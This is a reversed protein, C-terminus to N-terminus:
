LKTPLRDKSTLFSSVVGAVHDPQNIHVYHNGPVEVYQFREKLVSKLTETIFAMPEKKDHNEKRLDGTGQSAKVLLVQAQLKKIFPVFREKSIFEAHVEPLTLRRDRNIVLGTAVPSTGRQLLIKGSEEWVHTNTKVLRQLIEDQSYVREPMKSARGAQAKDQQLMHEIRRRRVQLLLWLPWLHDRCLWRSVMGAVLGGFSHGMISLRSWKLAATVRLVESVFSEHRYLVGPSYHSSLGHGGFDMAVYYFDRPLLPILRDFSNANDLWAHLCLVPRDSPSGWAKAAIHGWPVPLKLESYLGMARIRQDCPPQCYVGLRRARSCLLRLAPTFLYM